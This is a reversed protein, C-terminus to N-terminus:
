TTLTNQTTFFHIQNDMDSIMNKVQNQDTNPDHSHM